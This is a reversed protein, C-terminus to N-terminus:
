FFCFLFFFRNYNIKPHVGSGAFGCGSGGPVFDSHTCLPRGPCSGRGTVAKVHPHGTFAAKLILFLLLLRM